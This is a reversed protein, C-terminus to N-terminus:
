KVKITEVACDKYEGTGWFGNIYYTCKEVEIKGDGASRIDRIHRINHCGGVVFIVFLFLIVKLVIKM